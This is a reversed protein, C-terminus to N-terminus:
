SSNQFIHCIDAARYHYRTLATRGVTKPRSGIRNPGSIRTIRHNNPSTSVQSTAAPDCHNYHGAPVPGTTDTGTIMANQRDPSTPTTANAEAGIMKTALVAPERNNIISHTTTALARDLLQQVDAWKMSDLLRSKSWRSAHPGNAVRCAELQLHQIKAKLYQPAGAWLTVGYLLKSHFLGNILMKTVKFNIHKRILKIASLRKKLEKILNNPSDEIFFNWKMDDKIEIGLYTMTRSPILKEDQGEIEIEIEKKIKEEQSLILLKSKDENLVLHNANMYDSIDNLVNKIIENNTKKDKSIMIRSISDDVFTNTKPNKDEIYEEITLLKEQHIVPYDLTYIMYLLGSLTSGQCVSLPGIHLEESLFSDVIVRQTRQDLYSHFFKMTLPQCGLEELKKLLLPHWVVDFAASQDLILVASDEGKELSYVWEDLMSLVATMTGRGRIGGNHQHLLLNNEILHNTLQSNVTRDIIKAMSPLINVCRYSLPNNQPKNPKLIPIIKACKLSKPYIGSNITTNILHLIQHKIVPLIQKITKLSINDIGTSPTSKMKQIQDLLERMSLQKIQFKLNKKNTLKRFNKMPDTKTKPVNRHLRLNRSIQEHNIINAIQNPKHFTQGRHSITNPSGNKTWGLTDKTKQWMKRPDNEVETM